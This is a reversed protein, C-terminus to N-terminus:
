SPVPYSESPCGVSGAPTDETPAQVRGRQITDYPSAIGNPEDAWALAQRAAYLQGYRETTQPQLLAAAIREIERQIFGM